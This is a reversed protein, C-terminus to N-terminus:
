KLQKELRTIETKLDMHKSLKKLDALTKELFVRHANSDAHFPKHNLSRQVKSWKTLLEKTQHNMYTSVFKDWIYEEALDNPHILDKDYFRYDRLEDILIEYSPFYHCNDLTETIHHVAEVLVAKSRNNGVLGDRIHRVPSITFLFQLGPNLETMLHHVKGFHEIIQGPKLLSKHFQDGPFKHCNAVVIYEPMLTYIWSTGPTLILWRAKKIYALTKKRAQQVQKILEIKKPSSNRSHSDWDYWIGNQEALKIEKTKNISLEINTFVSIPNYIVGFPNVLPNFKSDNLFAGMSETFCSGMMLIPDKIDIKDKSPPIDFELKFM